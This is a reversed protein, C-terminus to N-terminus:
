RYWYTVGDFEVSSYDMQLERAAKEWDICDNPWNADKNIAGIDDAFEQAYTEFYSDRVFGIPYWDGRWQVDGGNGRTEDLLALYVCLQEVDYLRSDDEELNDKFERAAEITPENLELESELREVEEIVDRIDFVDDTNTPVSRTM